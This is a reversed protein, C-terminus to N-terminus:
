PVPHELAALFYLARGRTPHSRVIEQRAMTLNAKAFLTEYGAVDRVHKGRDLRAYFNNLTKGPLIVPDQTAIRRVSPVAACMRLLDLAQVDDLHHLLGNMMVRTPQIAELDAATVARAEFTVNARGAALKRAFAIATPDTDFGHLARFRKIHKLAEGPGCGIDVVVDDPQVELNAFSPSMDVGGVVLPRIRTYVFPIGLVRDYLSMSARVNDVSHFGV